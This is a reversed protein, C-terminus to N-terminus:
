MSRACVQVDSPLDVPVEDTEFAFAALIKLMNRANSRGTLVIEACTSVYVAAEPPAHMSTALVRTAHSLEFPGGYGFLKILDDHWVDDIILLRGQGMWAQRVKAV